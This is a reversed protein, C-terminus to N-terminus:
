YPQLFAEIHRVVNSWYLRAEIDDSIKISRYPAFLYPYSDHWAKMAKKAQSSNEYIMISVDAFKADRDSVTHDYYYSYSYSFGRTATGVYKEEIFDHGLEDQAYELKEIITDMDGLEAGELQRLPKVDITSPLALPGFMIYGVGFIFLVYICTCIKNKVSPRFGGDQGRWMKLRRRILIFAIIAIIMIILNAM